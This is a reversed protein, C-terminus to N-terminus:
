NQKVLIYTQSFGASKFELYYTGKALSSINYSKKYIGADLIEDALIKVLKGSLDFLRIITRAKFGLGFNLEIDGTSPNPVPSNIYFDTFGVIVNRLDNMCVEARRVTIFLNTDIFCPYNIMFDVTSPKSDTLLYLFKLKINYIDNKSLSGPYEFDIRGEDPTSKIDWFKSKLNDSSGLVQDAGLYYLVEENYSITSKFGAISDKEINPANITITPSFEEGPTLTVDMIDSVAKFVEGYNQIDLEITNESSTPISLHANHEGKHTATFQVLVTESSQAPIKLKGSKNLRYAQADAGTINANDLDVILDITNSLNRIELPLLLNDCLLIHQKDNIFSEFIAKECVMEITNIKWENPYEKDYNDAEVWIQITHSGSPNPKYLIPFRLTDSIDIDFDPLHPFPWSFEVTSYSFDFSHIRVPSSFGDNIMLLFSVGTSDIPTNDACITELKLSPLFVEGELSAILTDGLSSTLQLAASYKDVGPPFFNVPIILTDNGKSYRPFVSDAVQFISQFKNDLFNLSILELSDSDKNIIELNLTPFVSKYLLRGFDLNNIHLGERIGKGMLKTKVLRCGEIPFNIYASKNGITKPTFGLKLAYSQYPPITIKEGQYVGIIVFDKKNSGSLYPSFVIAKNMPNFLIIDVLSDKESDIFVNGFDVEEKTIASCLGYCALDLDLPKGCDTTITLRAPRPGFDQPSFTVVLSAKGSPEVSLGTFDEISYESACPGTITWEIVNVPFHYNNEIIDSYPTVQYSGVIVSDKSIAPIASTLQPIEIYFNDTSDQLTIQSGLDVHAVIKVFYNGEPLTQKWFYEDGTINKAIIQWGSSNDKYYLDKLADNAVGVWKIQVGNCVSFIDNQAPYTITINGLGGFLKIVKDCPRGEIVLDSTRASQDIKQTFRVKIIHSQNAGVTIGGTPISTLGGGYDIINFYNPNSPYIKNILVDYPTPTLAIDLDNSQDPVPNGFYYYSKDTNLHFIASEPPSYSTNFLNGIPKYKLRVQTVDSSGECPIQSQWIVNCFPYGTLKKALLDYIETLAGTKDVQYYENSISQLPGNNNSLFSISYLKINNAALASAVEWSRFVGQLEEDHNGDTLFIICRNINPQKSLLSIAGQNPDLFASNFNTSSPITGMVSLKNYLKNKDNTFNCYLNPIAGFGLIGVASFDNLQVKSIFTMASQKVIDIKSKGNVLQSMSTSQDILLLVQVPALSEDCSRTVLSEPIIQGNESVEFDAPTYFKGPNDNFFGCRIMPFNTISPATFNFQSYSNLTVLLLVMIGLFGKKFNM